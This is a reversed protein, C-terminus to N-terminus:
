TAQNRARGREAGFFKAGLKKAQIFQYAGMAAFFTSWPTYGAPPSGSPTVIQNSANVGPALFQNTGPPVLIEGPWWVTWAIPSVDPVSADQPQRVRRLIRLAFQYPGTNQTYANPATAANYPTVVKATWRKNLVTFTKWGRVQLRCKSNIQPWTSSAQATVDTPFFLSPNDVAYPAGEYVYFPATGTFITGPWQAQKWQLEVMELSPNYWWDMPQAGPGTVNGPGNWAGTINRYGLGAEAMYQTLNALQTLWIGSPQANRLFASSASQMAAIPVGHFMPSAVQQNGGSTFKVRAGLQLDLNQSFSGLNGQNLSSFDPPYAVAYGVNAQAQPVVYVNLADRLVLEDEVRIAYPVVPNTCGINTAASPGYSLLMRYNLWGIMKQMMTQYTDAAVDSYVSETWSGWGPANYEVTGKFFSMESGGIFFSKMIPLVYVSASLITVTTLNAQTVPTSGSAFSAANLAEPTIEPGLPKDAGDNTGATQAVFPLFKGIGPDGNFRKWYNQSWPLYSASNFHIFIGVANNLVNALAGIVTIREVIGIPPADAIADDYLFFPTGFHEWTLGLAQELWYYPAELALGVLCGPPPLLTVPDVADGQRAILRGHWDPEKVAAGSEFAKPEGFTLLQITEYSFGSNAFRRAFIHAVAGGYSHGAVLINKRNTAGMAHVISEYIGNLGQQFGWNVGLPLIGASPIGDPTADACGGTVYNFVQALNTTGCFIVLVETPTVIVMYDAPVTSRDVERAKITGGLYEAIGAATSYGPTYLTAVLLTAVLQGTPDPYGDAGQFKIM